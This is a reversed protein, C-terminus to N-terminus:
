LSGFSIGGRSGFVYSLGKKQFKVPYGLNVDAQSGSILIDTEAYKKIYPIIERARSLHGNGTAQVAYLVKM